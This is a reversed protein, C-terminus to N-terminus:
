KSPYTFKKTHMPLDGIMDKPGVKKTLAYCAKKERTKKHCQDAARDDAIRPLLTITPGKELCAGKAGHCEAPLYRWGAHGPPENGHFGKYSELYLLSQCGGKGHEM